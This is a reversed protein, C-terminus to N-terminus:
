RASVYMCVYYMLSDMSQFAARSIRLTSTSWVGFNECDKLSSKSIYVAMGVYMCVCLCVLVRRRKMANLSRELRLLVDDFNNSTFLKGIEHRRCKEVRPPQVSLSCPTWLVKQHCKKIPVNNIVVISIFFVNM